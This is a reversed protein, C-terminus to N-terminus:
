FENGELLPPLLRLTAGYNEDDTGVFIQLGHEDSERVAVSEVKLGDLTGQLRPGDFLNVQPKDRVEALEGICYVASAFPGNDPDPLGAAEADFASAIYIRGSSDLDMAVVPRNFAKPDPNLFTVAQFAGFSLAEPDFEAWCLDTSDLNQAREAFMFVFRGGVAGVASAEVNYVPVPWRTVDSIRIYDEEVRAKFIRQFRPNGNDGSEVLLIDKTGPIRAASELDNSRSGHFEPMQPKWLIGQSDAPLYLLSLRPNGSEGKVKADHVALFCDGGFWALGSLDPLNSAQRSRFLRFHPKLQSKQYRCEQAKTIPVTAYSRDGGDEGWTEARTTFVAIMFITVVFCRWLNRERARNGKSLTDLVFSDSDQICKM